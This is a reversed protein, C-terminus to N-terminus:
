KIREGFLITGLRVMTSGEEVAVEFDNSMGMSLENGNFGAIQERCEDRLGRTRAFTTRIVDDAATFPAMTMFGQVEINPLELIQRVAAVARRADDGVDIGGKTTEGSANVQILGRVTRGTESAQASLAQALRLSDISHILDFLDIAQTVKNRQLHGILHWTVAHRGVEETKGALEGVRNEGCDTLGAAAAARVADVPHGKTVAVIRVRDSRGARALAGTMRAEVAPLNDRIRAEYM